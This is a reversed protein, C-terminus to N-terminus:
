VKHAFLSVGDTDKQNSGLLKYFYGFISDFSVIKDSLDSYDFSKLDSISPFIRLLQNSTAQTLAPFVKDGIKIGVLCWNHDPTSGFIVEGKELHSLIEEISSKSLDEWGYKSGNQIIWNHQGEASLERVEGIPNLYEGNILIKDFVNGSENKKYIIPNGKSDVRHSFYQQLGLCAIFTSAYLNCSNQNSWSEVDTYTYQNLENWIQYLKAFYLSNSEQFMEFTPFEKNPFCIKWEQLLRAKATSNESDNYYHNSFYSLLAQKKEERIIEPVMSLEGSRIDYLVEERSQVSLFKIIQLFRESVNPNNLADQVEKFSTFDAKFGNKHLNLIEAPIENYPRSYSLRIQNFKEVSERYKEFDFKFSKLDPISSLFNERPSTEMSQTPSDTSTSTSINAVEPSTQVPERPKADLAPIRSDPGLFAGLAGAAAGKLFRRRNIIVM